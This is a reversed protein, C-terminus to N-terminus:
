FVLIVALLPPLFSRSSKDLRSRQFLFRITQDDDLFRGTYTPARKVTSFASEIFPNDNPPPPRTFLQAMGHDECLRQIPKAKM